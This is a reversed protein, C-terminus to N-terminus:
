NDNLVTSHRDYSTPHHPAVASRNAAPIGFEMTNALRVWSNGFVNGFFNGKRLAATVGLWVALIIAMLLVSEFVAQGRSNIM